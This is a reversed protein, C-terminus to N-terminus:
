ENGKRSERETIEPSRLSVPSGKGGGLLSLGTGTEPAAPETLPTQEPLVPKQEMRM